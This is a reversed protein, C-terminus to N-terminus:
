GHRIGGADLAAQLRGIAIVLRARDADTFPEGAMMATAAALVVLAEFGICRLIDQAPFPRREGRLGHREEGVRDPYLDSFSLGIASLIDETSDGGFDHILVRGDDLVRLTCSPRRDERTPSHFVYSDRGTQRHRVRSLVKEAPTM